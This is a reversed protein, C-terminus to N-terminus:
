KRSLAGEMQNLAVDFSKDTKASIIDIVAEAQSLDLRGNLLGSRSNAEKLLDQVM